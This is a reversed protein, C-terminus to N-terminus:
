VFIGYWVRPQACAGTVVCVGGGVLAYYITGPEVQDAWTSSFPCPLQPASTPMGVPRDWGFKVPGNWAAYM